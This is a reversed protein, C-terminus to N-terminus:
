KAPAGHFYSGLYIEATYLTRGYAVYPVSELPTLTDFHGAVESLGYQSDSVVLADEGDHAPADFWYDYQDPRDAIATVDADHLAFGLQAATTYRATAIFGVKHSHKLADVRAAVAPWGFSSSITWDFGGRLNDLPVITTNFAFGAAFILGFLSHLVL